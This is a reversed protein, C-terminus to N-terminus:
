DFTSMFVYPLADPQFVVDFRWSTKKDNFTYHTLISGVWMGTKHLESTNLQEDSFVLFSITDIKHLEESVVETFVEEFGKMSDVEPSYTENVLQLSSELALKIKSILVQYEANRKKQAETMKDQREIYEAASEGKSEYSALMLIGVAILLVTVMWTFIKYLDM